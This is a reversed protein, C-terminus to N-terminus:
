QAGGSKGLAPKGPAASGPVYLASISFKVTDGATPGSGAEASEQDIQTEQFHQSEEMKRVLELAHDRSDGAVVLKIALENDPAYEPQISVVHLRPPMVSELEEFVQTWSFSKRYFLANLFQSRDRTVSNQPLNMLAQAAAKQDDRDAIQHLNQAIVNKDKDATVWGLLTFYVLGLTVIALAVLAGGWRFWFRRADEYPHTALNIDM